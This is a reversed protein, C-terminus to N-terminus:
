SWKCKEALYIKIQNLFPKTEDLSFTNSEKEFDLNYQEKFKSEVFAKGMLDEITGGTVIQSELDKLSLVNTDTFNSGIKIIKDRNKKGSEDDDLIVLPSIDEYNLKSAISVINDGHGNTILITEKVKLKALTKEIIKKDSQGEVLLKYPSLFDKYVNIGFAEQLVEDDFVSSEGSIQQHITNKANDKKIIFNREKNKKDIMFCSHTALFVYNNEGIKLLEKRIDRIGSPHIHNEPEDILILRNKMDLSHHQISLSLILSAFQHFGQSRSNMNFFKNENAKGKDKIHVNCLLTESIEIDIEIEHKWVNGFYKTADKSLTSQLGRRLSHNNIIEEIKAKIEENTKYESLVFINKLPINTLPNDKFTQLNIPETILYEKEPKWFSVKNKYEKITEELLDILIEHLKDVDLIEFATLEESNLESVHKIKYEGTPLFFYCYDNLKNDEWSVTYAEKFHSEGRTLYVNKTITQIKLLKLFANSEVIKKKLVSLYAKDNEFEFEFYIDVYEEKDNNQNNLDLFNFEEEPTEIFSMAQLINSKGVENIGVFMSTYSNGHKKVEFNLHSISKFNCIKIQKLLM